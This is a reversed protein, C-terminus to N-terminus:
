RKQFSGSCRSSRHSARSRSSNAEVQLFTKRHFEQNRVAALRVSLEDRRKSQDSNPLRVAEAGALTTLRGMELAEHEAASVVAELAGLITRQPGSAEPQSPDQRRASCRTALTSQRLHPRKPRKASGTSYPAHASSCTGTTSCANPDSCRPLM